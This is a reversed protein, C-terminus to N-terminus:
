RAIVRIAVERGLLCAVVVEGDLHQTAAFEAFAKLEHDAYGPYARLDDFVIVSGAVLRPEAAQLVTRTSSYLDCDVHLLRVPGPQSASFGLLSDEFWGGHLRVLGGAM